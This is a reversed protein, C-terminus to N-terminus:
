CGAAGTGPHAPFRESSARVLRRRNFQRTRDHADLRSPPVDLLRSMQDFATHRKLADLANLDRISPLGVIKRPDDLFRISAAKLVLDALEVARARWNAVDRALPELGALTGKKRRSAITNAVEARPARWTSSVGHLLEYGVLDGLYPAVWPQCTEIFQDDYLQDIDEQLM